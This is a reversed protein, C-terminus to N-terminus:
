KYRFKGEIRLLAERGARCVVNSFVQHGFLKNNIWLNCVIASAKVRQDRLTGMHDRLAVMRKTLVKVRHSKNM